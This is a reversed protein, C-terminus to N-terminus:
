EPKEASLWSLGRRTKKHPEVLASRPIVIVFQRSNSEVLSVRCSNRSIAETVPILTLADRGKRSTQKALRQALYRRYQEAICVEWVPISM